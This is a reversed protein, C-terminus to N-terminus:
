NRERCNECLFREHELEDGNDIFYEQCEECM